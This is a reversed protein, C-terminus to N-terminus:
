GGGDDASVLSELRLDQLPRYDAAFHSLVPRPIQIQHLSREAAPDAGLALWAQSVRQVEAQDLGRLASFPHAPYGPTTYLIRLRDRLEVPERSLTNNVGGGAEVQAIAIARYVNSHTKLYVPTFAVGQQRLHARILLSAAFANPSPFAITGGNLQRLAQIPSDRRVLLIGRLLTEGDRVLPQYRDQVMVQHYPNMFAYDYRGQQLDQEFRPISVPVVLEFCVGSREGLRQLVPRWRSFVEAPPLQPVIGVSRPQQAKSTDGVCSVVPTSVPAVPAVPARSRCGILPLLLLGILLRPLRAM